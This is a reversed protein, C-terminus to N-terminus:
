RTCKQRLIGFFTMQKTTRCDSIGVISKRFTVDNGEGPRQAMTCGFIFINAQFKTCSNNACPEILYMGTKLIKLM